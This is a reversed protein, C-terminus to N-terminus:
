LCLAVVVFFYLLILLFLPSSLLRGAGHSSLVQLLLGTWLQLGLVEKPIDTFSMDICGFGLFRPGASLLNSVVPSLLHPTFCPCLDYVHFVLRRGLDSGRLQAALGRQLTLLHGVWFPALSLPPKLLSKELAFHLSPSLRISWATKFNGLSFPSM